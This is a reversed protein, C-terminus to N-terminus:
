EAHERDHDRNGLRSLSQTFQLVKQVQSGLKMLRQLTEVDMHQIDSFWTTVLEILQYMEKMRAQAHQEAESAPSEMIAGRLMTLTPEVERKKREEALTKFILWVDEPTSFYERRDGPFHQLKVLRWSQLEKLGMSVNSRSCGIAEGIEDANLPKESVYLLAYIQGVTRNIGWRSGMEGFHLVFAQVLPPINM